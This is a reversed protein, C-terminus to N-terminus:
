FEGIKVSIMKDKVFYKKVAANVQKLSVKDIYENRKQLFDLGLNYKQMATLIEAINTISAFRLNYSALLYDKAKDLEKKSIGKNAFSAVEEMLLNEAQEFKDPTSAFGVMLLQFKDDITLYSYVGYTLGEQERIKQSIKSTLGAGGWIHNAVFLPYFDEDTRQVSPLAKLVLNQGGGRLIKKERGDFVVEANRVFNNKGNTPLDGFVDDLLTKTEAESLDGVVSVLLNTRTFRDKVFSMLNDKTLNKLFQAEGLPNRAYPHSGYLEKQMERDLVSDPYEDQRKLSELIQAKVRSIDAEDFRPRKLALSLLEKAKQLNKKTTLVSVSFDDKEADFRITIARLELEEKFQQATLEGAGETMLAAVLVAEGLAKEDDYAYGSNKFKLNIAVIPNTKDEMWYASVGYLPSKVIKIDTEFKKYKLESQEVLDQPNFPRWLPWKWWLCVGLIMLLVFYVWINSSKRRFKSGRRM